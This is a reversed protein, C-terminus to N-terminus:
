PSEGEIKLRITGGSGPLDSLTLSYEGRRIDDFVAQGQRTLYSAQERNGAILSLRVGDAPKGDERTVRVVIQCLGSKIQEMEVEVKYSGIKKQVQLVGHESSRSKARVPLPVAAFSAVWDGSTSVLEISDKVFRLAIDFLGEDQSPRKQPKDSQELAMAQELLLSPVSQLNESISGFRELAAILEDICAACSSLHAEVSGRELESLKEDVYAALMMADPCNGGSLSVSTNEQMLKKLREDLTGISDVEQRCRECQGVHLRVENGDTPIAEGYVYRILTENEPCNM